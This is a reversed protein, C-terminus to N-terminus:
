NTNLANCTDMIRKKVEKLEEPTLHDSVIDFDGDDLFKSSNSRAGLYIIPQKHVPDVEVDRRLRRVATMPQEEASDDLLTSNQTEDPEEKCILRKKHSRRYIVWPSVLVVFCLAILISRMIFRGAAPDSSESSSSKGVSKKPKDDAGSGFTGLIPSM